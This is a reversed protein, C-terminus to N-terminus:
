ARCILRSIMSIASLLCSHLLICIQYKKVRGLAQYRNICITPYSLARRPHPVLSTNMTSKWSLQSLNLKAPGPIPELPSGLFRFIRHPLQGGLSGNIQLGPGRFDYGVNDMGQSGAATLKLSDYRNAPM